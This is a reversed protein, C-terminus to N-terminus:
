WFSIQLKINNDFQATCRSAVDCINKSVCVCMGGFCFLWQYLWIWISLRLKQAFFYSQVFNHLKLFLFTMLTKIKYFEKITDAFNDLLPSLLFVILKM